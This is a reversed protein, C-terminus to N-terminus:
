RKSCSRSTSERRTRSSCYRPLDISVVQYFYLFSRVPVMKDMEITDEAVIRYVHVPKTQGIRHVRGIAQEELYPNWWPDLVIVNNCSTINLGTGGSQITMLLVKCQRDKAVHHLVASREGATFDGTDS